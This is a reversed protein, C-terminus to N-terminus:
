PRTNQSLLGVTTSFLTMRLLITGVRVTIIEGDKEFTIADVNGVVDRIKKPKKGTHVPLAVEVKIDRLYLRLKAIQTRDPQFLDRLNRLRLYDLCVDQLRRAPMSDCLPSSRATQWPHPSVYVVGTTCDINVIIKEIGPRM